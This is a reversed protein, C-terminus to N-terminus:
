GRPRGPDSPLHRVTTMVPRHDSAVSDPVVHVTSVRWTPSREAFIFDIEKVPGNSPFTFASDAPKSAPHVLDDFVRLTRSDPGDNFDGLLLWPDSLTDLVTSLLRAQRFRVADDAVWDFHVNVATVTDGSPLAIRV